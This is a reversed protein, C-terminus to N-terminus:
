PGADSQETSGPVTITQPADAEGLFTRWEFVYHGHVVNALSEEVGPALWAVPVGDLTAVRLVDSSNVLLLGAAPAQADAGAGSASEVAVTRFSALESKSLLIQSPENPLPAATFSRDGPPAALEHADLDSRKTVSAADFVLGGRTAWRLEVHLPVQDSACLQTQPAASMLDLFARCLLTGGDGADKIEALEFTAKAARTTVVFRTTPYGVRKTGEVGAGIEASSLPAVDLRREGLLARLAGPAV